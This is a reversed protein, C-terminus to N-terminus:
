SGAAPRCSRCADTQVLRLQWDHVVGVYGGDLRALQEVTLAAVLERAHGARRTERVAAKIGAAAFTPAVIHRYLRRALRHGAVPNLLV